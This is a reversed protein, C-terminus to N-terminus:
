PAGVRGPAEFGQSAGADPQWPDGLAAVLRREIPAWDQQVRPSLRKLATGLYGLTSTKRTEEDMAEGRELAALGLGWAEFSDGANERCYSAMRLCDLESRPDEAAVALPVTDLYLTAAQPWVQAQVAAAGMGLRAKLRLGKGWAEGDEEGRKAHTEARQFHRLADVPKALSLLGNGLGFEVAVLLHGWKQTTAVQTAINAQAQARPLDKKAVAQLLQLFAHRFQGAPTELNGAEDSIEVAAGTLDLEIEASHVRTPQAQMLPALAQSGPYDFVVLRVPPPIDTLAADLWTNWGDRNGVAAPILVLALTPLDEGEAKCLAGALSMLDRIGHGTVKPPVFSALAPDGPKALEIADLLRQRLTAGYALPDEFPDELRVFAVPLQGAREDDEAAFFAEVGRFEHPQVIWRLLRAETDDMFTEWQGYLQELRRAVPNLRGM